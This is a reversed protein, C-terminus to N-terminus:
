TGEQWSLYGICLSVGDLQEAGCFIRDSRAGLPNLVTDFELPNRIDTHGLTKPIERKASFSAEKRQIRYFPSNPKALVLRSCTKIGSYVGDGEHFRSLFVTTTDSFWGGLHRIANCSGMRVYFVTFVISLWKRRKSHIGTYYSLMTPSLSASILLFFANLSDKKLHM